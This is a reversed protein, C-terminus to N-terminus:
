SENMRMGDNFSKQKVHANILHLEPYEELMKIIDLMYFDHKGHYLKDYIKSILKYDDLTDLTWRLDSYDVDNKYVLIKDSKVYIYPTVHERQFGEIANNHASELSSLWFVETDLGRPFTRNSPDSHANTGIEYDGQLFNTLIADIVQPDILPCDSTIRVVVDLNNEVAAKYYRSLVDSESGRFVKTNCRLSEELIIKDDDKNTTAVIIEDLMNSQAVRKLVHELITKGHLTKMVKGPLRTSGMRAQIIAGVRM